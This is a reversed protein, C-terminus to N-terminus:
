TRTDQRPVRGTHPDAHSSKSASMHGPQGGKNPNGMIRRAGGPDRKDQTNGDHGKKPSEGHSPQTTVRGAPGREKPKKLIKRAEGPGRKDPTNRYDNTRAPKPDKNKKIEGGWKKKYDM